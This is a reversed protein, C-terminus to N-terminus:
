WSDEKEPILSPDVASNNEICYVCWNTTYIGWREAFMHTSVMRDQYAREAAPGHHAAQCIPFRGDYFVIPANLLVERLTNRGEGENLTCLYESAGKKDPPEWTVNIRTMKPSKKPTLIVTAWMHLSPFMPVQLAFPFQNEWAGEELIGFLAKSDLGTKTCHELHPCWLNSQGDRVHNTSHCKIHGNGVLSGHIVPDHAISFVYSLEFM